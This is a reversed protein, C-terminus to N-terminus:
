ALHDSDPELRSLAATESDLDTQGDEVTLVCSEAAAASCGLETSSDVM